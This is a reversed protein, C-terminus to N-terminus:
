SFSIPFTKNKSRPALSRYGARCPKNSVFKLTAVISYLENGEEQQKSRTRFVIKFVVRFRLETPRFRSVFISVSLGVNPSKVMVPYAHARVFVAVIFRRPRSSYIVLAAPANFTEKRRPAYPEGSPHSCSRRSLKDAFRRGNTRRAIRIKKEHM